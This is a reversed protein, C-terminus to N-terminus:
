SRLKLPCLNGPKGTWFICKAVPKAVFLSNKQSKNKNYLKYTLTISKIIQHWYKTRAWEQPQDLDTLRVYFFLQNIVTLPYSSCQLVQIAMLTNAPNQQKQRRNCGNQLWNKPIKMWNFCNAWQILTLCDLISISYFWANTM